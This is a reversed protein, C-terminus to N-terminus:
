GNVQMGKKEEVGQEEAKQKLWEDFRIYEYGIPNWEYDDQGNKLLNFFQNREELTRIFDYHSKLQLANYNKNILFKLLNFIVIIRKLDPNYGNQIIKNMPIDSQRLLIKELAFLKDDIQNFEKREIFSMIELIKCGPYFGSKDKMLEDITPRDFNMEEYRRTAFLLNNRYFNWKKESFRSYNYRSHKQAAQILREAEGYQKAHFLAEFLIEM